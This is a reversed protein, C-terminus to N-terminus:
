QNERVEKELDARAEKALGCFLEMAQLPYKSNATEGTLMIASAGNYVARYVDNAEARTCVPFNRMSDLMETVVMYPKHHKSCRRELDMQIGPLHKLGAANALDGRAIVIMDCWDFLSELNKVGELNEIKAYVKIDLDMENLIEHIEKLDKDSQVFPVMVGTVHMARANALNELDEKRLAPLDLEKGQIKLGKRSTLVGGRLVACLPPELAELWIKGDDLLIKDGKEIQALIEEEVPIDTGLNVFEGEMLTLPQMEKVRLERGQLDILLDAPMGYAQQADKWAEIWASADFLTGHSLNFRIGTMGAELMQELLEPDHCTPGLTGYIELAIKVVDM